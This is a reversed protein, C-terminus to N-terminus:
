FLERVYIPLIIQASQSCYVMKEMSKNGNSKRVGRAMVRVMKKGGDRKRALTVPIRTIANRAFTLKNGKGTEGEATVAM